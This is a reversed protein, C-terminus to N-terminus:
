DKYAEYYVIEWPMGRKTSKENGKIDEAEFRFHLKHITYLAM